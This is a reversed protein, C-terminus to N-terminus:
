LGSELLSKLAKVASSPFSPLVVLPEAQTDQRPNSIGAADVATGIGDQASSLSQFHPSGINPTQVSGALLSDSLKDQLAVIGLQLERSSVTAHIQELLEFNRSGQAILVNIDNSLSRLRRLTPSDSEEGTMLRVLIGLIPLRALNHGRIARDLGAVGPIFERGEPSRRLQKLIELKHVGSRLRNLYYIGGEADPARGLVAEYATMIFEADHPALLRPVSTVPGENGSMDLDKWVRHLDSMSPNNATAFEAGESEFVAPLAADARWADVQAAYGRMIIEPQRGAIRALLAAVRRPWGALPDPAQEFLRGAQGLQGERWAIHAHLRELEAAHAAAQAANERSAEDRQQEALERGAKSESLYQDAMAIHAHLREMEAAHAATQAANERLAEDRQQEALERAAISESLHQKIGALQESLQVARAETAECASNAEMLSLAHEGALAQVKERLDSVRIRSDELAHESRALRIALDRWAAEADRVRVAVADTQAALTGELRGAERALMRSEQQHAALSQQMEVLAQASTEIRAELATRTADLVASAKARAANLAETREAEAQRRLAEVQDRHEAEVRALATAITAELYIDAQHQLEAVEALRRAEAKAVAANLAEKREAEAQQRLAAVQDGHEVAAQALAAALAAQREAEAHAAVAAVAEECEAEATLKAAALADLREREADRRAAEVASNGEGVLRGAVFHTSEVNFGDFVNPSLALAAGRKVNTEHIFYRSLGDFLVDRYGRSLVSDYWVEHTQVQANPVTAEIVLAIPRAPHSGWSELVDAEMGEVDIKLWHIPAAGMLDFLGALTVTPVTIVRHEWGAARHRQAIEAVGTSLGTEPIEFLQIPGPAKSVAAEIVTEDPRALRMAAAYAPTPEVHVGRWDREYFALSVSDRVPGQTGIDLYRGEKIDSFARWLRVDEFNQAHSIFTM